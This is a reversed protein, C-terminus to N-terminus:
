VRECVTVECVWVFVWLELMGPLWLVWLHVHLVVPAGARWRCQSLIILVCKQVWSPEEPSFFSGTIVSCKNQHCPLNRFPLYGSPCLLNSHIQAAQWSDAWSTASSRPISNNNRQGPNLLQVWLKYPLVTHLSPSKQLGFVYILKLWSTCHSVSLNLCM